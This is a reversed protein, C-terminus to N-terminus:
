ILKMTKLFDIKYKSKIIDNLTHVDIETKNPSSSNTFIYSLIIKKQTYSYVVKWCQVPVFVKNGIFKDNYINGCIVLISDKQSLIRVQNEMTKWIGRNLEPTQPVCNWFRFTSEDFTCNYAFDEANAMHGEDYGSHSYDSSTAIRNKLFINGKFYFHSRDCDGGGKYLTYSVIIPNKLDFSYYSKYTESNFITDVKQSYSIFLTSLMTAISLLIKM